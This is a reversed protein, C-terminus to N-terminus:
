YANPLVNGHNLMANQEILEKLIIELNEILDESVFGKSDTINVTFQTDGDKFTLEIFRSPKLSSTGYHKSIIEM